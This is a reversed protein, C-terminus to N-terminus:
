GLSEVQVAVMSGIESNGASLSLPRIAIYM